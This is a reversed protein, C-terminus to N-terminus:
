RRSCQCVWKQHQELGRDHIPPPPAAPPPPMGPIQPPKPAVPMGPTQPPKPLSPCDPCRRLGRFRGANSVRSAPAPCSSSRHDAKGEVEHGQLITKGLDEVKVAPVQPSDRCPRRRFALCRHCVPNRATRCFSSATADHSDEERPGARDNARAAPNSIVSMGRSDVRTRATPHALSLHVAVSNSSFRAGPQQFTSMYEATVPPLAAPPTPSMPHLTVM